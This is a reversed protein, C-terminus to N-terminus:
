IGKAAEACFAAWGPKATCTIGDGYGGVGDNHVLGFFHEPNEANFNPSGPIDAQWSMTQWTYFILGQVLGYNRRLYAFLAHIRAAQQQEAQAQTTGLLTGTGATHTPYGIETIWVPLDPKGAAALLARFDTLKATHYYNRRWEIDPVARPTGTPDYGAPYWRDAYPHVSLGDIANIIGPYALFPGTYPAPTVAANDTGTDMAAFVKCGPTAHIAAAAALVIRAYLDTDGPLQGGVSDKWSAFKYPENWIEFDTVPVYHVSPNAAWYTGGPGYRAAVQGCYAAYDAIAQETAPPRPWSQNTNAGGVAWTPPKCLIGFIRLGASACDKVWADIGSWSWGTRSTPQITSWVFEERSYAAPGIGSVIRAATGPRDAPTRQHMLAHVGIPIM